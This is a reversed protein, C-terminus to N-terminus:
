SSSQPRSFRCTPQSRVRSIRGAYIGVIRYIEPRNAGYSMLGGVEVADRQQYIGPMGHRAALVVM